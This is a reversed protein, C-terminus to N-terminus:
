RIRKSIRKVEKKMKETKHKERWAEFRKRAEEKENKKAKDELDEVLEAKADEHNQDLSIEIMDEEDLDVSLVGDGVSVKVQNGDVDVCIAENEAPEEGEPYDMEMVGYEELTDVAMDVVESVEMEALTVEAAEKRSKLIM